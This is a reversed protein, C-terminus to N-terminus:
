ELVFKWNGCDWVRDYGRLQMNEWETLAPDFDKQKHKQFQYRSELTALHRNLPAYSYGPSSLGLSSFGAQIYVNGSFLRADSYTLISGVESKRFHSLLKNFGGAVRYGKKSAFRTIEWDYQKNFRPKTLLLLSVLEEQYFLGIRVSSAVYGQLHNEEMFLRAEKSSVDKVQSKRAYIKRQPMGLVNSLLSKVIDEKHYWEDDWIQILRVGKESCAKMKDVHYFKGVM